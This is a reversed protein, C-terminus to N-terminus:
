ALVGEAVNIFSANLCGVDFSPAVGLRQYGIRSYRTKGTSAISLRLKANTEHPNAPGHAWPM